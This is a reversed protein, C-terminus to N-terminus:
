RKPTDASNKRGRPHASAYVERLHDPTVKTYIQTTTVSAHGLLEQVVRIDAGGQRLHTAFSHRLTHPTTQPLGAETGAARVLSFAVQRSLRRGLRGVFLAPTGAGRMVRAPRDQVVYAEVAMRAYGGLPVVRQKGGKGRLLVSPRETDLRLDDLDLGLAESIRAGSGYLLEILAAALQHRAQGILAQVQEVTLAKPLHQGTRPLAVQAAPDTAVWGEFVAFRHLNRVATLTRAASSAALGSAVLFDRFAEVEAPAVQEIQRQGMFTLYKDLDTLYAQHTAPSLGREIRIHALYRRAAQDIQM